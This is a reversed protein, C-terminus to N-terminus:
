LRRSIFSGLRLGALFGALVVPLSTHALASGRLVTLDEEGKSGPAPTGTQGVTERTESIRGMKSIKAGCDPCTGQIALRSNKLTVQRPDSIEVHKREKLCYGQVQTVEASCRLAPSPSAPPGRHGAKFPPISDALHSGSVSAPDPRVAADPM